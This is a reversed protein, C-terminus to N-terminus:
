KFLLIATWILNGIMLLGLIITLWVPLTFVFGIFMVMISILYPYNKKM